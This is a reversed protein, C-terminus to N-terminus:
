AKRKFPQASNTKTNRWWTWKVKKKGPAACTVGGKCFKEPRCGGVSVRLTTGTGVLKLSYKNALKIM